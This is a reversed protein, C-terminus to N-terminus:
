RPTCANVVSRLTPGTGLEDRCKTNVDRADTLAATSTWSPMRSASADFIRKVLLESNQSFSELELNQEQPADVNLSKKEDARGGSAQEPATTRTRSPQEFM